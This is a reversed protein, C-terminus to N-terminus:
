SIVLWIKSEREYSEMSKLKDKDKDTHVLTLYKKENPVDNYWYVIDIYLPKVSNPTVYGIYHIFINKHSKKDIKINNPDLNKISIM